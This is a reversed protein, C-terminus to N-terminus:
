IKWLSGVEVSDNGMLFFLILCIIIGLLPYLLTVIDEGEHLNSFFIQVNLFISLLLIAYPALKLLFSFNEYM